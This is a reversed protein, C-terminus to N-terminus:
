MQGEFDSACCLLGFLGLRFLWVLFTVHFYDDIFHLWFLVFCLLLPIIVVVLLTFFFIAFSVSNFVKIFEGFRQLLFTRRSTREDLFLPFGRGAYTALQEWWGMFKLMNYGVRSQTMYLYALGSPLLRLVLTSYLLISGNIAWGFPLNCIFDIVQIYLILSTMCLMHVLVVMLLAQLIARDRMPSATQRPQRIPYCFNRVHFPIRRGVLSHIYWLLRSKDLFNPDRRGYTKQRVDRPANCGFCVYPRSIIYNLSLLCEEHYSHSGPCEFTLLDEEPYSENCIGCLVPPEDRLQKDTEPQFDCNRWAQYILVFVCIAYLSYLVALVYKIDWIHEPEILHYLRAFLNILCLVFACLEGKEHEWVERLSNCLPASYGVGRTWAVHMSGYMEHTNTNFLFCLWFGLGKANPEAM